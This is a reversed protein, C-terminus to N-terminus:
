VPAENVGNYVLSGGVWTAKVKVDGLNMRAEAWPRDILCLDAIAEVEVRRAPAGADHCPKTYLALATEPSVAEAEFGSPRTVAAAMAAWPNADGFPADSGAAMPLGATEFAKLRWLNGHEKLPVDKRYAKVREAIFNPQTVVIVGLRKMWDITADDAIAAHEIRDGAMVGAQEIAALTLMLEARTVCHAAMNRGAKHAAKIEAALDDLAPLNHDHYHLKLPGIHPDNLNSLDAKGMICLRLPQAHKLYHALEEAGNSPTVETVGTIGYGLLRNILPKLDPFQSAGRIDSDSDLLRGNAPVILGNAQMALSNLIWLRGSRHQIRIPKKPGNDDLWMRDIEGAVSPHYGVGRIFDSQAAHLTNILATKNVIDPPGCSLSNMAAASANLHIHHDHLGPLLAGGAGELFIKDDYKLNPGIDRIIGQTIFVDVITGKLDVNRILM